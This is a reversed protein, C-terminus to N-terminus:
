TNEKDNYRIKISRNIFTNTNSQYRTNAPILKGGVINDEWELYFSSTIM